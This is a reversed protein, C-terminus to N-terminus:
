GLMCQSLASREHENVVLVAPIFLCTTFIVGRQVEWFDFMFDAVCSSDAPILCAAM